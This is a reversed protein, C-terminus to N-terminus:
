QQQYSEKRVSKARLAHSFLDAPRGCGALSQAVVVALDCVRWIRALDPLCSRGELVPRIQVHSEAYLDRCIKASKGKLSAMKPCALGVCVWVARMRRPRVGVTDRGGPVGPAKIDAVLLAARQDRAKRRDFIRTRISIIV